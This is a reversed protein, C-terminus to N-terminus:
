VGCWFGCVSLWLWAVWSVIWHRIRRDHPHVKPNQLLLFNRSQSFWNDLSWSCEADSIPLSKVPPASDSNFNNQRVLLPDYELPFVIKLLKKFM